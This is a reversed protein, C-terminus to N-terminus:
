STSHHLRRTSRKRSASCTLVSTTRIKSSTACISSSIRTAASEYLEFGSHPHFVWRFFASALQNDAGVTDGQSAREEPFVSSHNRGSTLARSERCIPFTSSAPLDSGLGPVGRPLFVIQASTALRVRKRTDAVPLYHTSGSVFAFIPHDLRGWMVRTQM